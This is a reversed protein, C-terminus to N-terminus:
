FIFDVVATAITAHSPAGNAGTWLGSGSNSIRVRDWQLKLAAQPHFDWRTGISWSSQQFRSANLSATVASGLGQAQAAGVPGIVPTLAAQWAPMPLVGQSDRVHGYAVYPTWDGVRRGLTAYASTLVILPDASIRVVEASWQWDALEHRLGLEWFTGSGNEAGLRRRMALAQEAVTPIPVSGLQALGDLVPQINSKDIDVRTHAYSVRLLLGGEERSLMGGVISRVRSAKTSEFDGIRASGLMLKARWQADGQQWSRAVDAGDLATPLMAYFEVPPRATMFGYGVNRYDAMLFVDLNVRGARLTWDATPRYSAYAWELADSDAAYHARKKAIVQGVLEFQSGLSYNLQVGLRTDVDARWADDSGGQNLERRFGWGSPADVHSVGLSGFGSLRLGTAGSPKDTEQAQAAGMAALAVLGALLGQRCRSLPDTTQAPM